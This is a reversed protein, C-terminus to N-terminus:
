QWYAPLGPKTDLLIARIAQRTGLDYPSANNTDALLDWLRKYTYDKAAQPLGDFQSSYILFSLPYRFLRTQLDFDRLCRGKADKPGRTAFHEAFAGETLDTKACVTFRFFLARM